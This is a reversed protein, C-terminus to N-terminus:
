TDDGTEGTMYDQAEDIADSADGWPGQLDLDVTSDTDCWDDYICDDWDSASVSYSWLADDLSRKADECFGTEPMDDIQSEEVSAKGALETLDDVNLGVDLRADVIMLADLYDGLADECAAVQRRHKAEAAKKAAKKEAIAAAAADAKQQEDWAQYGFWGGVGLVLVTVLTVATVILGTRKKKPEPEGAPGLQFEGAGSPPSPPPMFDSM